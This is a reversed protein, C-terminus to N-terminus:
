HFCVEHESMETVCQIGVHCPNRHVFNFALKEDPVIDVHLEAQRDTFNCQRGFESRKKTYVYVIEM